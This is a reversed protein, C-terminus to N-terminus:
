IGYNVIKFTNISNDKLPIGNIILSKEIFINLITIYKINKNLIIYTYFYLNIVSVYNQILIM